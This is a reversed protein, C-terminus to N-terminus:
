TSKRKNLRMRIDTALRYSITQYEPMKRIM